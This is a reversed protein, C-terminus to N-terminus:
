AASCPGSANAAELRSPSAAAQGAVVNRVDATTTRFTAAALREFFFGGASDGQAAREPSATLGGVRTADRLPGMVKGWESPEAAKM